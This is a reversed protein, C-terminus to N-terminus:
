SNAVSYTQHLLCCEINKGQFPMSLTFVRPIPAITVMKKDSDYAKGKGPHKARGCGSLKMM